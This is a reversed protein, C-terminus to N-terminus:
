EVTYFEWGPQSSDPVNISDVGSPAVIACNGNESSGDTPKFNFSQCGPAQICTEMCIQKTTNTLYASIPFGCFFNNLKKSIIGGRVMDVLTFM